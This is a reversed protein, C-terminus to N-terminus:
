SGGTVFCVGIFLMSSVRNYDQARLSKHTRVCVGPTAKREGGGTRAASLM